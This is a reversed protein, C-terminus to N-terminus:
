LSKKNLWIPFEALSQRATELVIQTYEPTTAYRVIEDLAANSHKIDVVAHLWFYHLADESTVGYKDRLANGLRNSERALTAEEIYMRTLERLSIAISPEAERFEQLTPLFGYYAEDLEEQTAGLAKCTIAILSAHDKGKAFGGSEEALIRCWMKRANGAELPVLRIREPIKVQLAARAEAYLAVGVRKLVDQPMSGSVISEILPIKGESENFLHVVQTRIENAKM